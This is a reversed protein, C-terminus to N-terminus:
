GRASEALRAIPRAVARAIMLSLVIGILIFCCPAFLFQGRLRHISVLADDYPLNAVVCGGGIEPTPHFGGIVDIGRYDRTRLQASTGVLCRALAAPVPAESRASPIAYRLPTLFSGQADTLFVEGHTELGSRDQFIGNIEALPFRARLTLRGRAGRMTYEPRDGGAVLTAIQGVPPM